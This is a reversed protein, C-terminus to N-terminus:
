VIFGEEDVDWRFKFPQFMMQNYTTKNFNDYLFMWEKQAHINHMAQRSIISQLRNRETFVITNRIMMFIALTMMTFCISIIIRMIEGRKMCGWFIFPIQMLGLLFCIRLSSIRLKYPNTPFGFFCKLGASWCYILAILNLIWLYPM